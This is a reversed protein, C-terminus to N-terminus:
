VARPSRTIVTTTTDNHRTRGWTARTARPTRTTWTHPQPGHTPSWWCTLYESFTTSGSFNQQIGLLQKKQGWYKVCTEATKAVGAQFDFYFLAYITYPLFGKATAKFQTTHPRETQNESLGFKMRSKIKNEADVENSGAAPLAVVWTQQGGCLACTM